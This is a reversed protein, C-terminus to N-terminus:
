DVSSDSPGAARGVPWAAARYPAAVVGDPDQGTTALLTEIRALRARLEGLEDHAQREVRAAARLANIEQERIHEPRVEGYWLARIRRASLGSLRAVRALGAKVNGKLSRGGAAADVLHRAECAANMYVVENSSKEAM